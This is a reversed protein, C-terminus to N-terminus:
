ILLEQILYFLFFPLFKYKSFLFSLYYIQPLAFFFAVCACFMLNITQLCMIKGKSFLQGFVDCIKLMAQNQLTLEYVSFFQVKANAKNAWLRIKWSLFLPYKHAMGTNCIRGIPWLKREEMQETIGKHWLFATNSIYWRSSASWWRSCFKESM